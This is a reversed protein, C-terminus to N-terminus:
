LPSITVTQERQQLKPVLPAQLDPAAGGATERPVPLHRDWWEVARPVTWGERVPCSALRESLKEASPPREGPRKALCALITADLEPSVEVEARLSPPVPRAELHQMLLQAATTAKFVTSGTLLWYGVCGLAYIDARHDPEPDGLLAEPAM